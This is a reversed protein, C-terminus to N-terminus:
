FPFHFPFGFNESFVQELAVEDVMYGVHSSTIEFTTQRPPFGAVLGRLYPLPKVSRTEM